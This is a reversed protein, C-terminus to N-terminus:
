FSEECEFSVTYQQGVGAIWGADDSAMSMVAYPRKAEIAAGNAPVLRIYPKVHIEAKGDADAEVDQMLGLLQEGITVFQGRRLKVGAAGWGATLLSRGAQGAGDITPAIGSIQDRECAILKFSNAQGDCDIAFARWALVRAEGQIPPLTVKARWRPAAPLLTVRRRSTVLSRNVQTPQNLTWEVQAPAPSAPLTILSM